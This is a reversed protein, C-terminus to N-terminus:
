GQETRIRVLGSVSENEVISDRYIAPFRPRRMIRIQAEQEALFLYGPVNRGCGDTVCLVCERIRTGPPNITGLAPSTRATRNFQVLRSPANEHFHAIKLM